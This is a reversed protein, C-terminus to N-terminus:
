LVDEVLAPMMGGPEVRHSQGTRGFVVVAEDGVSRGVWQGAEPRLDLVSGANLGVCIRDSFRAHLYALNAPDQTQVRDTCHPFVQLGEVLGVGNELLQFESRPESKDHFVVVRRGLAMAGASSGFFCTGRRLAETLVGELRFFRFGVLLRSPSGGPLAVLSATLLRDALDDRLKRWLPDFELGAAVHFHDWLDRQVRSRREDADQLSVLSRHVRGRYAEDLIQSVPRTRPGPPREARGSLFRVMSPDELREKARQWGDRLSAVRADNEAIYTNWLEWWVATHEEYLARVVERRGLLEQV